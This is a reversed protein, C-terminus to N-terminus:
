WVKENESEGDRERGEAKEKQLSYFICIKQDELDVKWNTLNSASATKGSSQPQPQPRLKGGKKMEEWIEAWDWSLREM